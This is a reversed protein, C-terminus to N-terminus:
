HGFVTQASVMVPGLGWVRWTHDPYRILTVFRAGTVTFAAFVQSTQAVEPVFRVFALDDPADVAYYVKSAISRHQLEDVAWGYDGFAAPNHTVAALLDHRDPDDRLLAAWWAFAVHLPDTLDPQESFGQLPTDEPSAAVYAPVPSVAPSDDLIYQNASNAFTPATATITALVQASTMAPNTFRQANQEIASVVLAPNLHLLDSLFIEPPLAVIDHPACAEDPFDPLNATVITSAGAAIAAALVHRDKPHNTLGPELWEFGHVTAEPFGARMAQLRKEAKAPIVGLKGTMTRQTENLLHESWRAQFLDAEALWLLLNCLNYPALVCADLVVIESM